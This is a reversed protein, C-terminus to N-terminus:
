RLHDLIFIKTSSPLNEKTVNIYKAREVGKKGSLFKDVGDIDFDLKSTKFHMPVVIKPKIREVIASAEKYDITFVGGVPMIAVDIDKLKNYDLDPTGLDGFHVLKLSEATILFIINKGRQSGKVKDHYSLFGEIVVDIINFTGESDVIKAKPVAEVYDHDAHHHSVTVIDAEVEIPLYRIAGSYARPEYPDTLIKIKSELEIYFCAHGLWSIKM